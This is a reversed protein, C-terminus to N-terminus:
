GEELFLSEVLSEIETTIIVKPKRHKVERDMEVITPRSRVSGKLHVWTLFFLDLDLDIKKTM